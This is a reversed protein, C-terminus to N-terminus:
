IAIQQGLEIVRNPPLHFTDLPSAASRMMWSFLHERWLAMGPTTSVLLTERSLFYSTQM